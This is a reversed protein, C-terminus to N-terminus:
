CVVHSKVEIYSRKSSPNYRFTVQNEALLQLAKPYLQHELALGRAKFDELADNDLRPFAEQLLIPGNDMADDVFHVTVGSLKVGYHFADEYGKSGPFAPLLSPHINVVRYHGEQKFKNLFGPTFLRMYGALVLYDIEFEALAELIQAEHDERSLGTHPIVQAPVGARRALGIVPADEVNCVVCQVQAELAGSQIADLIAQVNSGRGSAFLAIKLSM